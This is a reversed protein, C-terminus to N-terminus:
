NPRVPRGNQGSDCAMEATSRNNDASLIDIAVRPERQVENSHAYSMNLPIYPFFMAVAMFVLSNTSFLFITLAAM